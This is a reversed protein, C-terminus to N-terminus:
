AKKTKIPPLIQGNSEDRLYWGDKKRFASYFAPIMPKNKQHLDFYDFQLSPISDSPSASWVNAVNSSDSLLFVLEWRNKENNRFFLGREDDFPVIVVNDMPPHDFRIDFVLSDLADRSRDCIKGHETLVQYPGIKTVSLNKQANCKQTIFIFFLPICVFAFKITKKMVFTKLKEKILGCFRSVFL